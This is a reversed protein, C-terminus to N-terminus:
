DSQTDHAIGGPFTQSPLSLSLSSPPFRFSSVNDAVLSDMDATLLRRGITIRKQVDTLFLLWNIPHLQGASISAGAPM